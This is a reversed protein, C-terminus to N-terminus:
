DKQQDKDDEYDADEYPDAALLDVQLVSLPPEGLFPTAHVSLDTDEPAGQLSKTQCARIQGRLVM